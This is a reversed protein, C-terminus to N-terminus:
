SGAGAPLFHSGVQSASSHPTHVRSPSCNSLACCCCAVPPRSRNISSMSPGCWFYWGFLGDRLIRQFYLAPIKTVPAAPIKPTARTDSPQLQHTFSKSWQTPSRIPRCAPLTSFDAPNPLSNISKKLINPDVSKYNNLPSTDKTPHEGEHSATLGLASITVTIEDCHQGSFLLFGLETHLALMYYLIRIPQRDAGNKPIM